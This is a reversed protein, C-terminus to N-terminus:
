TVTTKISIRNKSLGASAGLAAEMVKPSVKGSMCNRLIKLDGIGREKWEKTDKDFRFLKSRECFLVEEGEEGSTTVHAM